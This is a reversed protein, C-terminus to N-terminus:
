RSAVISPARRSMGGSPGGSTLAQRRPRRAPVRRRGPRPVAVDLPSLDNPARRTLSREIRRLPRLASVIAFVALGALCLGSVGLVILASRIIGAALQDRARTTHGVLVTVTGSYSREAFRRRVAALRVPEGQITAGYYATDPEPPVPVHDHGTLTAGSQDIVRYAIRDEPALALLEFATVPIDVVPEGDRIRISAAIQSAAGILLRDYAEQAARQGFALAALTLIVGGAVLILVIALGLRTTLSGVARRGPAATSDTM